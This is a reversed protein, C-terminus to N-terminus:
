RQYIKNAPVYQLGYNQSKLLVFHHIHCTYVFFHVLIFRLPFVLLTRKRTHLQEFSLVPQATLELIFKPSIHCLESFYIQM